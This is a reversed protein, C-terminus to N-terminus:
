ATSGLSRLTSSPIAPSTTWLGSRSRFTAGMAKAYTSKLVAPLQAPDGVLIFAGIDFAALATVIACVGPPNMSAEDIIVVAIRPGELGSEGGWVDHAKEMTTVVWFVSDGLLSRRHANARKKGPPYGWKARFVEDMTYPKAEPSVRAEPAMRGLAPIAARPGGGKRGRSENQVPLRVATSSRM